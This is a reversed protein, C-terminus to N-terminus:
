GSESGFMVFIRNESRIQLSDRIPDPDWIIIRPRIDVDDIFIIYMTNKTYIVM